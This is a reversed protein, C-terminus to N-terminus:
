YFMRKIKTIYCRLLYSYYHYNVYKNAQKNSKIENVKQEILSCHENDAHYHILEDLKGDTYSTDDLPIFHKCKQIDNIVSLSFLVIEAVYIDLTKKSFSMDCQSLNKKIGFFCSDFFWASYSEKPGPKIVPFDSIYFRGAGRLLNLNALYLHAVGGLNNNEIDIHKINKRVVCSSVFGVMMLAIARYVEDKRVDILRSVKLKKSVGLIKSLHYSSGDKFRINNNQYLNLYLLDPNNTVLNNLILEFDLLHVDDDDSLFWVYHTLSENYLNIINKDFGLNCTNRIYRINSYNNAFIECVKRSEDNDSNDGVIVDVKSFNQLRVLKTLQRQLYRSRNYTPIAITLVKV